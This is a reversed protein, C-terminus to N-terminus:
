CSLSRLKMVKLKIKKPFDKYIRISDKHIFGIPNEDDEHLFVRYWDSDSRPTYFFLEDEHIVSVVPSSKDSTQHVQVNTGNPIGPRTLFQGRAEMNSGDALWICNIDYDEDKSVEFYITKQNPFCLQVLVILENGEDLIEAKMVIGKLDEKSYQYTILAPNVIHHPTFPSCIQSISDSSLLISYFNWVSSRYNDEIKSSFSQISFLTGLVIFLFKFSAHMNM